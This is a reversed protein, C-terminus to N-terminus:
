IQERVYQRQLRTQRILDRQRAQWDRVKSTEFSNDLGAAELTGAKRKWERIKREIGRQAQTAEYTSIEKGNYTVSKDLAALQKQTYSKESLGEFFPYFSHRCNYGALGGGTGYGTSTVFDPYKSNGNRSYVKGQWEQHSPRAGIHASVEVLDAGMEDARALQLEATTQGIGTLLSRRLAVDIKDAYGNPYLVPLASDGVKKIAARLAQDYSMTGTIVQQYVLNSADMFATQSTLATTATLNLFQANTKSLGVQLVRLMQPSLNLPLPSLGAQMYISDDFKLAKVGAQEFTEKLVKESKGTLRALKKITDEYVAGSEIMRQMQWAATATPEGMKKIRRAIDELVSQEFEAFLDTIPVSLADFQAAALM